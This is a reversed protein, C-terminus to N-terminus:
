RANYNRIIKESEYLNSVYYTVSIIHKIIKTGSPGGVSILPSDTFLVAIAM